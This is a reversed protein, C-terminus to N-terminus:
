CCGKSGDHMFSCFYACYMSFLIIFVLNWALFILIIAFQHILIRFVLMTLNVYNTGLPFASICVWSACLFLVPSILYSFYINPMKDTESAVRQECDKTKGNQGYTASSENQKNMFKSSIPPPVCVLFFYLM